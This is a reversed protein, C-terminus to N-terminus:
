LGECNKAPRYGANEADKKNTFFIKNEAKMRVAGSCWPLHYVSGKKSAVIKFEEKVKEKLNENSIKEEIKIIDKVSEIKNKLLNKNYNKTSIKGLFFAASTALILILSFFVYDSTWFNKTKNNM